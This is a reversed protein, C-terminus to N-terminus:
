RTYCCNASNKRIIIKAPLGMIISVGIQAFDIAPHTGVSPQILFAVQENCIVEKIALVGV